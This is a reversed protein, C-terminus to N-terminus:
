GKYAMGSVGTIMQGEKIKIKDKRILFKYVPLIIFSLLKKQRKSLASRRVWLGLMQAMSAHWGGLPELQIKQFNATKLVRELSFPTYRYEDHPVEHLPWLFPVTFFFYGRPKLVRMVETLFLHVDPVHELVETAFVGEFSNDEFPMKKGDWYYDPKIEKDYAIASEIDLGIYETISSKESIYQKYPMKGCGADLLKGHFSPLANKLAKLISTRQYYLDLNDAKLPIKIFNDNDIM